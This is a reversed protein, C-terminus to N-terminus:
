HVLLPPAGNKDLRETAAQGRLARMVDGETYFSPQPPPLHFIIWLNIAEFGVVALVVLAFVRAFLTGRGAGLLKM